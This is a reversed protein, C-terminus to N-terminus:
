HHHHGHHRRPRYCDDPYYNYHGPVLHSHSRHRIVAGHHHGLSHYSHYPSILGHGYLAGYSPGYYLSSYGPYGGGITISLGRGSYYGHDAKAPSSMMAVSLGTAVACVFFGNKLSM